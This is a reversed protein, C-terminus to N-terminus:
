YYHKQQIKNQLKKMIILQLIRNIGIKLDYHKIFPDVLITYLGYRNGGVIDTLMQDGIIVTNTKTSHLLQLSKMFAEEKPKGARSLFPVQLEQAVPYVRKYSNNSVLCINFKQLKTTFFEKLEPSVETSNAPMITNDIDFLLNKYGRKYLSEYPITYINKQYSNPIVLESSCKDNKLIKIFTKLMEKNKGM